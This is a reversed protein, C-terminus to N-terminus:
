SGEPTRSASEAAPEGSSPPTAGTTSTPEGGVASRAGFLANIHLTARTQPFGQAGEALSVSDVTLLRGRATLEGGHSGVLGRIRALLSSVNFYRGDAVVTIPVARYGQGQVPPGPAISEFSVRSERALKTLELIVEPIGPEDPVARTVRFVDAADIRPAAEIPQDAPPASLQAETAEIEAQLDSAASRKPSILVLYGLLVVALLAAVVLALQARPPLSLVSV